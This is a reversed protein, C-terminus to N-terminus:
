TKVWQTVSAEIEIDLEARCIDSRVYCIEDQPLLLAAFREAVAAYDEANRLYVKFRRCQRQATVIAPQRFAAAPLESPESAAPPEPLQMAASANRLSVQVAALAAPTFLELGAQAAVCNMNELTIQLQALLGGQTQSREKRISATGSIFIERLTCNEAAVTEATAAPAVIASDAKSAGLLEHLSHQGDALYQTLSARAFGPARPGYSPSYRYAPVQLPNELYSVEAAQPCVACAYIVLQDGECGVASAAPLHQSFDEAFTSEFALSRGRCFARYRELGGQGQANIRPLYHWVRQLRFGTVLKFLEHYLDGTASELLADNANATACAWLRDGCIGVIWNGERSWRVPGAGATDAAWQEQGNGGLHPMCVNLFLEAGRISM